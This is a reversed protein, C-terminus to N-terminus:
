ISPFDIGEVSGFFCMGFAPFFSLPVLLAGTGLHGEEQQDTLYGRAPRPWLVHNPDGCRRVDHLYVIAGNSPFSFVHPGPPHTSVFFCFGWPPPRDHHDVSPVLHLSGMMFRETLLQRSTVLPWSSCFM